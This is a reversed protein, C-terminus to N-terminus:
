MRDNKKNKTFVKRNKQVYFVSILLSFVSVIVGVKLYPQSYSIKINHEGPPLDIGIFGYVNYYDVLTDDVYIKFGKEYGLTLLFVNKENTSNITGIICNSTKEKINLQNLKLEKYIKNLNDYRFYGVSVDIKENENYANIDLIDDYNNRIICYTKDCKVINDTSLDKENIKFSTMNDDDFRLILYEQKKDNYYLNAEDKQELNHIYELDNNTLSNFLLNQWDFFDTFNNNDKIRENVMFGLKLAYPNEYIYYKKEDHVVSDLKKYYNNHNTTVIIKNGVFMDFLPNLSNYQYSNTYENTNYIIRQTFMIYNYNTTSLFSYPSSYDFILSDNMTISLENGFRYEDDYYKMLDNNKNIAKDIESKKIPYYNHYIIGVNLVLDAIILVSLYKKLRKKTLFLIYIFILGLTIWIKKYNLFSYYKGYYTILIFYFSILLFFALFLLIKKKDIKLNIISKYSLNIIFFCTLYSYRFSYYNPITFLHWIYNLIGIFCPLIFLLLVILSLKKEKKTIENNYFYLFVLLPMLTSCYLNMSTYNLTDNLELTGIYIKSFIDFFNYGFKLIKGLLVGRGYTTMEFICPILFFSCLLGSLLSSILFKKLIKKIFQKDKNLDYRLLIEYVFYIV